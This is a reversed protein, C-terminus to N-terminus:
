APPVEGPVAVEAAAAKAGGGKKAGKAAPEDEAGLAHERERTGARPEPRGKGQSTGAEGRSTARAHEAENIKNQFKTILERMFFKAATDPVRGEDAENKTYRTYETELAEYADPQLLQSSYERLAQTTSEVDEPVDAAVPKSGEKKGIMNAIEALAEQARDRDAKKTVLHEEASAAARTWYQQAMQNLQLGYEAKEVQLNAKKLRAQLSTYRTGLEAHSLSGLDVPQDETADRAAMLEEVAHQVVDASLGMAILQERKTRIAPPLRTDGAHQAAEPCSPAICVRRASRDTSDPGPGEAAKPTAPAARGALGPTPPKPRPLPGAEAAAMTAEKPTNQSAHRPTAIEQSMLVEEEESSQANSTAGCEAATHGLAGCKRCAGRPFKRPQRIDGVGLSPSWPAPPEQVTGGERLHKCGYKRCRVVAPNHHPTDCGPCVWIVPGAEDVPAPAAGLPKRDTSGRGVTRGRGGARGRGRPPAPLWERWGTHDPPGWRGEEPFFDRLRVTRTPRTQQQQTM